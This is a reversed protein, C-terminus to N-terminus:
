KFMPKKFTAAAITAALMALLMGAIVWPAQVGPSLYAAALVAVVVLWRLAMAVMLAVMAQSGSPARRRFSYWGAALGGLMVALLGMAFSSAAKAGLSALLVLACLAGVASGFWWQRRVLQVGETSM